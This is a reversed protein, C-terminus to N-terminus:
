SKSMDKHPPTSVVWRVRGQLTSFELGLKSSIGSSSHLTHTVLPYVACLVSEEYLRLSVYAFSFCTGKKKHTFLTEHCKPKSYRPNSNLRLGDRRFHSDEEAEKQVKILSLIIVRNSDHISCMNHVLSQVQSKMPFWVSDEGRHESPLIAIGLVWVWTPRPDLQCKERNLHCKPCDPVNSPQPSWFSSSLGLSHWSTHKSSGIQWRMQDKYSRQSLSPVSILHLSSTSLRPRRCVYGALDTPCCIGLHEQLNPGLPM